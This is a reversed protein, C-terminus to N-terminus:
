AGSHWLMDEKFRIYKLYKNCAISLRYFHGMEPPPMLHDLYEDVLRLDLVKREMVIALSFNSSKQFLLFDLVYM